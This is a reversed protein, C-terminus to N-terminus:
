WRNTCIVKVFMTETSSLNVYLGCGSFLSFYSRYCHHGLGTRSPQLETLIETEGSVCYQCGMNRLLLTKQRTWVSFKATSCGRLVPNPCGQDIARNIILEGKKIWRSFYIRTKKITSCYQCLFGDDWYFSDTEATIQLSNHGTGDRDISSLYFLWLNWANRLTMNKHQKLRVPKFTVWTQGLVLVALTVPTLFRPKIASKCSWALIKQSQFM